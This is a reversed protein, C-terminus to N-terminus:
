YVRCTKQFEEKFKQAAMIFKQPFHSMFYSINEQEQAM